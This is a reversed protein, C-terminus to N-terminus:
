YVFKSSSKIRREILYKAWWYCNQLLGVNIFIIARVGYLDTIEYFNAAGKDLRQM